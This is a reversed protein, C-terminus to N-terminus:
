RETVNNKKFVYRPVRLGETRIQVPQERSQRFLSTLLHDIIKRDRRPVGLAVKVKSCFM